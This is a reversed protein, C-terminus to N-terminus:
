RRFFLLSSGFKLFRSKTRRGLIKCIQEANLKDNSEALCILIAQKRAIIRVISHTQKQSLKRWHEEEAMLEFPEPTDAFIYKLKNVQKASLKQRKLLIALVHHRTLRLFPELDEATANEPIHVTTGALKQSEEWWQKRPRNNLVKLLQRIARDSLKVTHVSCIFKNVEKLNDTNIKAAIQDICGKPFHPIDSLTEIWKWNSDSLDIIHELQQSSLEHHSVLHNLIRWDNGALALIRDIQGESLKYHGMVLCRLTWWNQKKFHLIHWIHEESLDGEADCNFRIKDAILFTGSGADALDDFMNACIGPKKHTKIFNELADAM